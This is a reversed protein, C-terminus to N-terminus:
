YFLIYMSTQKKLLLEIDDIKNVKLQMESKEKKLENIEEKKVTIM